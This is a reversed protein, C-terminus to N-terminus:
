SAQGEAPVGDCLRPFGTIRDVFHRCVECDAAEERASHRHDTFGFPGGGGEDSTATLRFKGTARGEADAIELVEVVWM